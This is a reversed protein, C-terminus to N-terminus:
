YTSLTYNAGAYLGEFGITGAVLSFGGLGSYRVGASITSKQRIGKNLYEAMVELGPTMSWNFGAFLGDYVGTGFGVSGRVPKSVMGSFGEAAATLNKSIVVFGSTENPVAVVKRLRKGLDVVGIAVAPRDVSEDLLRFKANLVAETRVGAADSDLLAGSIELRSVSEIGVAAGYGTINVKPNGLDAVYRANFTLSTERATTDDPTEILGTMGYISTGALAAGSGALILVALSLLVATRKM